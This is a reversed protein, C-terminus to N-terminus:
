AGGEEQPLRETLMKQLGPLDDAYSRLLEAQAKPDTGHIAFLENIRQLQPSLPPAGNGNNGGNGNDEHSSEQRDDEHYGTTFTGAIAEAVEINQTGADAAYDLSSATHLEVSKPMYKIVQLLACKRGYMELNNENQLAYHKNGVKNYRKLHSLVKARSWVEIVPLESGRIKGCAYVHTFQADDDADDGPTHHISPDSGYQFRFTDGPRAAGTWVAARGARSVLDVYGQWGPVLTCTDKYPILYCQGMIGPELGLQSAIIISSFISKPSCERLAPTTQFATLAIRMMRDASLHKPLAQQIQPKMRELAEAFSLGKTPGAPAMAGGPQQRVITGEKLQQVTM